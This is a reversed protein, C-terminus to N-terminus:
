QYPFEHTVCIYELYVKVARGNTFENIMFRKIEM